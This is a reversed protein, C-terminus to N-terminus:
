AGGVPGLLALLEGVVVDGEGRTGAVAVATRALALAADLSADPRTRACVTNALVGLVAGSAAIPSWSPDSDPEYALLAIAAVGVPAHEVTVDHRELGATGARIRVPRRWGRVLGTSPDVLAFEDSLVDAGARHAAMCLSSKGARSPGPLLLARDGIRVLGAHVAVASAIHTAAFLALDSEIRDWGGPTVVGGVLAEFGTAASPTTVVLSSECRPERVVELGLPPWHRDLRAMDDAAVEVMVTAGDEARGYLVSM